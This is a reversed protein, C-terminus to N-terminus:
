KLAEGKQGGLAAEAERIAAELHAGGQLAGIVLKLVAPEPTDSIAFDPRGAERYVLLALNIYTSAMVDSPPRYLLAWITCRGIQAMSAVWGIADETSLRDLRRRRDVLLKAAAIAAACTDEKPAHRRSKATAAYSEVADRMTKAELGPIQFWEGRIRYEAFREHLAAEVAFADELATSQWLASLTIHNGSQLRELRRVVSTAVGIKVPSQWDTGIVYIVSKSM